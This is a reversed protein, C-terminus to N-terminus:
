GLSDLHVRLVARALEAADPDRVSVLHMALGDLLAHLRAAEVEINRTPTLTAVVYGCLDRLAAHGRAHVPALADSVMAAASFALWVQMEARREDDLPLTQLLAQEAQERATGAGSAGAIREAARELVLEFCCTLLSNQTPFSHRLSATALNAEASVARVSVGAAGDRLVVRWAAEAIDARRQSHDILKPM